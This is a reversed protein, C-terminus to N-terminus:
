NKEFFVTFELANDNEPLGSPNDKQLIMTGRRSFEEEWSPNEFVLTAEYPVYEETMWTSEPDNPDLVATAITQAIIKGDWDTLYVPFSAEFFWPGRAYGKITLPSKITQSPKPEIIYILDDKSNQEEPTLERTFNKGDPTACQEPYSEMIPYGAAVCEEYSNIEVVESETNVSIFYFGASCIVILLIALVVKAWNTM